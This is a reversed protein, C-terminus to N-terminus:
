TIKPVLREHRDKGFGALYRETTTSRTIGAATKALQRNEKSRAAVYQDLFKPKIKLEAKEKKEEIFQGTSQMSITKPTAKGM